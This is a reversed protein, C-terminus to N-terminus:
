HMKKDHFIEHCDVCMTIMSTSKCDWIFKGDYTNHHVHLLKNKAGCIMCKFGDRQMIQLRTRQWNPHKYQDKYPINLTVNESKAFFNYNNAALNSHKKLLHYNKLALFEKASDESIEKGIASRFWGKEGIDFGISKVQQKNWGGRDSKGSVLFERTIIMPKLFSDVLLQPSGQSFVVSLGHPSSITKTARSTALNM